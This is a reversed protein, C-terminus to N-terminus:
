EAFVLLAAYAVPREQGRCTLLAGAPLLCVDLVRSPVTWTICLESHAATM